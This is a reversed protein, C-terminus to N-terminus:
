QGNFHIVSTAVGNSIVPQATASRLVASASLQAGAALDEGAVSSVTITRSEGAALRGLTVVVDNQGQLTTMDSLDGIYDVGSPLTMVAQVGNLVHSSLNSVNLRYDLEGGQVVTLPASLDVVLTVQPKTVTFKDLLASPGDPASTVLAGTQADLVTDPVPDNM